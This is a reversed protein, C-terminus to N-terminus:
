GACGHRFTRVREEGKEEEEHEFIGIRSWLKSFSRLEVIRRVASGDRRGIGDARGRGDVHCHGEVRGVQSPGHRCDKRHELVGGARLVDAEM